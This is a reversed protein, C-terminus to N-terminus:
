NQACGIQGNKKEKIFLTKLTMDLFIKAKGLIVFTKEPTNKEGRSTKHNYMKCKPRHHMRISTVM